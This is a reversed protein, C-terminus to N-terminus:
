HIPIGTAPLASIANAM